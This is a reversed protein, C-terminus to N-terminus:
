GNQAGGVQGVQAALDIKPALSHHLWCMAAHGEGLETVPPQMERCIKMAFPCRASYGCGKPPSFLDPPTGEIPILRKRADKASDVRPVSSLLGVTYPHQPRYFIDDLSGREVIQGAYMVIVRQSIDAVVGLNHTILVISMGLRKQLDKLLDMIQAQITVDLATTPEDAVLLKPNCALAIAIMGRQRMGGSFQHPYERVRKEPNAIGVLDLMEVARKAAEAKTMHQHKILGESIQRGITMTPNLSTMPDQFIMSMDRGRVQQMQKETLTTLERGDFLVSGAKIKGPPTPILRMVSQMTVSKGCASEGVIALAEGKNVDFTVGRVAQVEGAYTFFSTKLNTVQLIKEM